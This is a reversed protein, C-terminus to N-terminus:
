SKSNLKYEKSNAICDAKQAQVVAYSTSNQISVFPIEVDEPQDLLFILLDIIPGYGLSPLSSDVLGLSLYTMRVSKDSNYTLNSHLSKLSSKSASYLYGKSVNSEGARSGISIILKSPDEKWKEFLKFTLVTQEFNSHANNIFVDADEIQSLTQDIESLRSSVANVDYKKSAKLGEKIQLGLGRTCGNIFIKM